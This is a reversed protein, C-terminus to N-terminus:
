YPYPPIGSCTSSFAFGPDDCKNDTGCILSSLCMTGATGCAQRLTGAARCTPTTGSSDCYSTSTCSSSDAACSGGVAVIPACVSTSSSTCYLGDAEFCVTTPTGPAAILDTTCDQNIACSTACPDGSKGRAPTKCIGSATSVNVDGTWVCLEAGGSAKCEGSGSIMPVGGVGCSAGEAETGVFVGKCASVLPNFACTTATQNYGAICSELATNDITETGQNVFAVAAIRSPFMTECDTLTTALGGKACCSRAAACFANALAVLSAGTSGASGGTGGPSSGATGSGGLGNGGTNSGGTGIGGTGGGLAGGGGVSSGGDGWGGTSKGGTGSGDTSSGGTGSRGGLGSGGGGFNRSGGNGGSGGAGAETGAGQGGSGSTGGNQGASGDQGAEGGSGSTGGSGGPAGGAGGSDSNATVGGSGTLGGAGTSGGGSFVGSDAPSKLSSGGCACFILLVSVAAIWHCHVSPVSPLTRSSNKFVALM